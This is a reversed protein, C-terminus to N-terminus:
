THICVVGRQPRSDTVSVIGGEGSEEVPMLRAEEPM